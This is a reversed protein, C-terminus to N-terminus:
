DLCDLGIEEEKGERVSHPAGCGGVEGEGRAGDDGEEQGGGGKGESWPPWRPVALLSGAGQCISVLLPPPVPWAGCQALWRDCTKWDGPVLLAGQVRGDGCDGEGPRHQGGWFGGGGAGPHRGSLGPPGCM